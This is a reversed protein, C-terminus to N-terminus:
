TISEVVLKPDGIIAFIAGIALLRNCIQRALSPTQVEETKTKFFVLKASPFKELATTSIVNRGVKADKRSFHAILEKRKQASVQVNHVEPTLAYLMDLQPKTDSSEVDQGKSKSVYTKVGDKSVVPNFKRIHVKDNRVIVGIFGLYEFAKYYTYLIGEMHDHLAKSYYENEIRTCSRWVGSQLPSSSEIYMRLGRKPNVISDVAVYNPGVNAYLNNVQHLLVYEDERETVVHFLLSYADLVREGWLPVKEKRLKILLAEELMAAKFLNPIYTLSHVYNSSKEVEEKYYEIDEPYVWKSAVSDVTSNSNFTTVQTYPILASSPTQVFDHSPYFIGHDEKLTLPFGLYNSGITTQREVVRRLAYMIENSTYSTSLKSQQIATTYPMDVIKGLLDGTEWLKKSDLYYSEYTSTDVPFTPDCNFAEYYKTSFDTKFTFDKIDDRLMNRGINMQYDVACKKISRFLRAEKMEKDHANGYVKWHAVSWYPSNPDDLGEVLEDNYGGHTLDLLENTKEADGYGYLDPMYYHMYVPFETWNWPPGKVVKSSEKHVNPRMIRAVAQRTPASNHESEPVCCHGANPINIGTTAAPSVLLAAIYKRLVNKPHGWAKLISQYTKSEESSIVAFRNGESLPLGEDTLDEEEGTFKTYGRAILAVEITGLVSQLNKSPVYVPFGEERTIFWVIDWIIASCNYLCADDKLYRVFWGYPEKVEVVKTPETRREYGPTKPVRTKVTRLVTDFCRNYGKVGYSEEFDMDPLHKEDAKQIGLNVCDRAYEETPFVVVGAQRALTYLGDSDRKAFRMCHLYGLTQFKSMRVHTFTRMLEHDVNIYRWGKVNGTSDSYMNNGYIKNLKAIEADDFDRIVAETVPARMYMVRGRIVPELEIERQQVLEELQEKYKETIERRAERVQEETLNDNVDEEWDYTWDEPEDFHPIETWEISEFSMKYERCVDQAIQVSLETRIQKTNPILNVHYIFERINDTIPTGSALTFVCTPCVRSLRWIQEYERLRNRKNKGGRGSGLDELENLKEEHFEDIIVYASCFAGILADNTSFTAIFAAFQGYTMLEIDMSDLARRAITRKVTKGALLENKDEQTGFPGFVIQEKFEESQIAASVYYTKKIVGPHRTSMYDHYCKFCGTKGSSQEYLLMISGYAHLLRQYLIQSNFYLKDVREAEDLPNPGSVCEGFERKAYVLSQIDPHDRSPYPVFFDEPPREVGVPVPAPEM